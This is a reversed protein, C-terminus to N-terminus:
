GGSNNEQPLPLCEAYIQVAISLQPYKGDEGWFYCAESKLGLFIVANKTGFLLAM